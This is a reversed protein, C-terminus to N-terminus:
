HQLIKVGTAMFKLEHVPESIEAIEEPSAGADEAYHQLEEVSTWDHYAYGEMVVKGGGLDLPMFFSYDHFQVFMSEEAGGDEGYVNMWCGKKLCVDDVQAIVKAHVSDQENLLEMLESYGIAGEEDIKEGFHVGDGEEETGNKEDEHYTGEQGCAAFVLAFISLLLLNKM